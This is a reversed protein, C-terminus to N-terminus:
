KLLDILVQGRVNKRPVVVAGTLQGQNNLRVSIQSSASNYGVYISVTTGSLIIGCNRSGRMYCKNDKNYPGPRLSVQGVTGDNVGGINGSSIWKLVAERAKGRGTVQLILNTRADFIARLAMSRLAPSTSLLGVEKAMQQLQADGKQLVYLMASFQKEPNSSNLEARFYDVIKQREGASKNYDSISASQALAMHPTVFMIVISVIRFFNNM